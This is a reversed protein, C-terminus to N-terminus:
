ATEKTIWIDFKGESNKNPQVEVVVKEQEFSARDYYIGLATYVGFIGKLETQKELMDFQLLGTNRAKGNESIGLTIHPKKDNAYYQMAKEDLDILLGENDKNYGRALVNATASEGIPFVRLYQKDPLYCFTCHYGDNKQKDSSKCAFITSNDKFFYDQM